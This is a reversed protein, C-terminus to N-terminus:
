LGLAERARELARQDSSHGPFGLTAREPAAWNALSLDLTEIPVDLAGALAAARRELHIPDGIAFLRKAALTTLDSGSLGGASALHLSDAQLEYIGLRGMTVLLDYRGMRGFGPLALREFLREFRRRPSWSRDGSFGGPQHELLQRFARLTATGRAPDHSTRPGLPVGELDGLPGGALALRIGAFPDEGELPCLYSILFCMWTAEECDRGQLERAEGYLGSPAAALALLRASAFAIEEALRAADASARLGPLLSSRYGDDQARGEHHVRLSEARSRGSRGPRAARPASRGRAPRASRSPRASPAHDPLTKSCIPCREIFRNHRCFTPM